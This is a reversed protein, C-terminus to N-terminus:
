KRSHCCLSGQIVMRSDIAIGSIEANGRNDSGKLGALNLLENLKM